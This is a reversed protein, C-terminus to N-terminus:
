VCKKKYYAYISDWLINNQIAWEGIGCYPDAYSVTAWKPDKFNITDPSELTYGAPINNNKNYIYHSEGPPLTGIQIPSPTDNTVTPKPRSDPYRYKPDKKEQVKIYNKNNPSLTNIPYYLNKTNYRPIYNSGLKQTPSPIGSNVETYIHEYKSFRQKQSFVLDGLNRNSETPIICNGSSDIEWSDPCSTMDTPFYYPNRYMYHIIITYVFLGIFFVVAIIVTLLQFTNM